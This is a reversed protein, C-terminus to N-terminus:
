VASILQSPFTLLSVYSTLLMRKEKEPCHRTVANISVATALTDELMGSMIDVGGERKGSAPLSM